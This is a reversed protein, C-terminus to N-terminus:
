SQYSYTLKEIESSEKIHIGDAEVVSILYQNGAM